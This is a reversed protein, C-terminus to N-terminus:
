FVLKVYHCIEIINAPDSSTIQSEVIPDDIFQISDISIRARSSQEEYTMDIELAENFIQTAEQRSTAELVRSDTLTDHGPM